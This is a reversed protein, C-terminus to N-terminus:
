ASGSTLEAVVATTLQRIFEASYGEAALQRQFARSFALRGFVGPKARQRYDAVGRLLSEVGKRRLARGRNGVAAELEPPFGARLEGVLRRATANADGKLAEFLGM